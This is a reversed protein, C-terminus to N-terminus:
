VLVGETPDLEPPILVLPEELLHPAPPPADSEDEVFGLTYLIM